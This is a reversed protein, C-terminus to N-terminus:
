TAAPSQRGTGNMEALAARGNEIAAAPDKRRIAANMLKVHPIARFAREFATRVIPATTHAVRAPRCMQHLEYICENGSELLDGWKPEDETELSHVVCRLVVTTSEFLM